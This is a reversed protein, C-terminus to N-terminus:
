LNFYVFLMRNKGNLDKLVEARAEPFYEKVLALMAEKQNWGMEFAMFSREKMVKKASAFIMRYFKLGDEGGFLAVHPEFDKVSTELVEEQPIYPPNSVLIDLKINREILPALMDGVVFQVNANLRSANEHAVQVATESIDTALIHLSPEEKQLAIAIAGSGTGVDAVFVDEQDAFYTDYEALVNAVLEETEPRPILVNENVTFQYGYFWEYGLIHGLPENQQLRAIGAQFKEYLELPMEQEYEMYLNHAEMQSLELLLMFAAQEGCQADELAAEAEKLCNRYTM